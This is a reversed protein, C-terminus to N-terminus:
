MHPQQKSMDKPAAFKTDDGPASLLDTSFLHCTSDKLLYNQEPVGRTDAAGRLLSCTIRMGLSPSVNFFFNDNGIPDPCGVSLGAVGCSPDGNLPPNGSLMSRRIPEPYASLPSILYGLFDGATGINMYGQMGPVDRRVEAVIQPYMEGPGGSVLVKGIHGSFTTTGLLTATFWPYGLARAGPVGILSGTYELGVLIPSDSVDQILYSSMGVTAPGRVPKAHRVAYRVKVMVRKAYGDLACLSAAAGKKAPDTCGDRAPQTRGLTGVQDMGFGGFAKQIKLNLRGVYDGSVLTNDSGLVTPHSSYNVYTDIVKGTKVSRAQLVRIEDDMAQNRADNSFQNTLLPDDNVSPPYENTENEVGAHAVGYTLTAPRMAKWADVLAKVTRDHVERLYSTPDGGWVGVTDPGSHTHDSDVLIQRPSPVPAPHKETLALAYIQASADKRIDELGFPGQKYEIFYGQTEIQAMAITNHRDSVMLARSHVGDGLIGTAYRGVTSPVQYKNAIKDDGFGYGGLYFDKNALMARTPNISAAAGGVLYVPRSDASGAQSARVSGHAAATFPVLSLASVAAALTALAARPRTIVPFTESPM